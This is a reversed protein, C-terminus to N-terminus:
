AQPNGALIQFEEGLIDQLFKDLPIGPCNGWSNVVGRIMGYDEHNPFIASAPNYIIHVYAVDLFTAMQDRYRYIHYIRGRYEAWIDVDHLRLPNSM